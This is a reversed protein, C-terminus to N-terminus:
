SSTFIKQSIPLDLPFCITRTDCLQLTKSPGQAEMSMDDQHTAPIEQISTKETMITMIYRTDHSTAQTSTRESWRTHRLADMATGGVMIRDSWRTHRLADMATGGVMIQDSWRTHRLAVM